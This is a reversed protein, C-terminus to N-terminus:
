HSAKKKKLTETLLNVTSDLQEKLGAITSDKVKLNNQLKLVTRKTEDLESQIKTTESKATQLDNQLTAHNLSALTLAEKLSGLEETLQILKLESASAAAPPSLPTQARSECNSNSNSPCISAGELRKIRTLADRYKEELIKVNGIRQTLREAEARKQHLVNQASELSVYTSLIKQRLSEPDIETEPDLHISQQKQHKQQQKLFENESELLNNKLNLNIVRDKWENLLESFEGSVSPTDVTNSLKIKTLQSETSYRLEREKDISEQLHKLQSRFSNQLSDKEKKLNEIIRLAERESNLIFVQDKKLEDFQEKLQNFEGQLLARRDRAAIMEREHVLKLTSHASQLQFFQQRLTRYEQSSKVSNKAVRSSAVSTLSMSFNSNSISNSNSLTNSPSSSMHLTDRVTCTLKLGPPHGM